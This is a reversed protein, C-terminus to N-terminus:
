RGVRGSWKLWYALAQDQHISVCLVRDAMGGPGGDRVSWWRGAHERVYVAGQGM